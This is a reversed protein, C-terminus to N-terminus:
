PLKEQVPPTRFSFNFVLSTSASNYSISSAGFLSQKKEVAYFAVTLYSEDEPSM